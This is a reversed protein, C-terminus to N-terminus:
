ARGIDRLLLSSLGELHSAGIEGITPVATVWKGVQLARMLNCCAAALDNRALCISVSALAKLYPHALRDTLRNAMEVDGRRAVERIVFLALEAREETDGVSLAFQFASDGEGISALTRAICRWVEEKADVHPLGQILGDAEMALEVARGEQGMHFFSESACALGFAKSEPMGSARVSALLDEGLADAHELDGSKAVVEAIAALISMRWKGSDSERCLDLTERLLTLAREREGSSAMAEAISIQASARTPAHGFERALLIARDFDGAKALISPAEYPPESNNETGGRGLVEDLVGRACDFEGADCLSDAVLFLQHARTMWDIEAHATSTARQGMELARGRDGAKLLAEAIVCLTEAHRNSRGRPAPMTDILRIAQEYEGSRAMVGAVNDTAYGKQKSGEILDLIEVARVYNGAMAASVAITDLCYDKMEDSVLSQAKEVAVDCNGAVALAECAVVFAFDISRVSDAIAEASLIAQQAVELARTNNGIKVWLNAAESLLHSRRAHSSLQSICLMAKEACRTAEANLENTAFKSISLLLTARSASDEVADALDIARSVEGRRTLRVVLPRLVTVQVSATTDLSILSLARDYEGMESLAGSLSSMTEDLVDSPDLEDLIGAAQDALQLSLERRGMLALEEALEAFDDARLEPEIVSRALMVAEGILEHVYDSHETDQLRAAVYVLSAAKYSPDELARAYNVARSARGLSIWLSLISKPTGRTREHLADRRVALAIADRVRVESPPSISLILDFAASIESLAEWDTGSANLLREHRQVDCALRTLRESDATQLLLRSYGRLLYEPTGEPWGQLAYSEAWTHLRERHVEIENRSLLQIAAQQLEEHALLYTESWALSDNEDPWQPGSLRFSRGAVTALTIQVLRPPVDALNGLDDATLGGGAVATLGVLFRGMEDTELLRFLDREADRRSAEAYPSVKLEHSIEPDRLPHDDSVDDPIPPHPRGSVIIRSGNPPIAPLLGAISYSDPGAVVGRDEDLGDVLLVLRRGRARCAGAAREFAELFQEDRTHDTVPPVEEGLIACLQRQVVECFATRDDQGALRGTIFFSALEVDDPGNLAFSAM